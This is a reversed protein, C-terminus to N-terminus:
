FMSYGRARVQQNLRAVTREIEHQQAQTAAVAEPSSLQAARQRLSADVWDSLRWSQVAAATLLACLQQVHLM